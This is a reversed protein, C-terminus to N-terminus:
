VYEIAMIAWPADADSFGGIIGLKWRRTLLALHSGLALGRV